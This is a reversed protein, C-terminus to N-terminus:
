LCGEVGSIKATHKVKPPKAPFSPLLQLLEVQLCLTLSSPPLGNTAGAAQVMKIKIKKGRRWKYPRRAESGQAEFIM